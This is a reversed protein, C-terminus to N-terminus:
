PSAQSSSQQQTQKAADSTESTEGYTISHTHPPIVGPPNALVVDACISAYPSDPHFMVGEKMLDACNKLRAIEYNLRKDALAADLLAVQKEAAARCTKVHHRDLPVSITATIGGNISFNDKQGTRVPKYFLINGPNDPKGDPMPNGEPDFAGVLDLTDYVPENYHSQYPSAWSTTTSLFPNINLTAGQCSIGGGYTNTFQRSPVVQVAQNTVSGSSNAVPAATSSVQAQAPASLLLLTAIVRKM